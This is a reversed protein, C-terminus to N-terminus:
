NEWYFNPLLDAEGAMLALWIKRQKKRMLLAVRLRLMGQDTCCCWWGLVSRVREEQASSTNIGRQEMITFKEPYKGGSWGAGSSCGAKADGEQKEKKEGVPSTPVLCLCLPSKKCNRREGKAALDAQLIQYL